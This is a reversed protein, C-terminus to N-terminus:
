KLHIYQSRGDFVDEQVSPIQDITCSSMMCAGSSASTSAAVAVDATSSSIMTIISIMITVTVITRFIRVYETAWNLIDYGPFKVDLQQLISQLIHDPIGFRSEPQISEELQPSPDQPHQLVATANTASTNSASRPAYREFLARLEQCDAPTIVAPRIPKESRPPVTAQTGCM